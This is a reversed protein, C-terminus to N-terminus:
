VDATVGGGEMRKVGHETIDEQHEVTHPSSYTASGGHTGKEDKTHTQPRDQAQQKPEENEHHHELMLAM